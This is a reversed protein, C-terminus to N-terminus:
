SRAPDRLFGRLLLAGDSRAMVHHRVGGEAPAIQLRLQAADSRAMVHHRVGGERPAVEVGLAGALLPALSWWM